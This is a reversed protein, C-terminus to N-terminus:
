IKESLKSVVRVELEKFDAALEDWEEFVNIESM